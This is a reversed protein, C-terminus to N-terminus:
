LKMWLYSVGKMTVKGDEVTVNSSILTEGTQVDLTYVRESPNVICLLTNEGDSRKFIAPYDDSIVEFANDSAFLEPYERKVAVMRKVTNILSNEQAEQTEVNIDKYDDYIPLYMEGDGTSFGANKGSTWQMPTRSGTRRYGGDKNKIKEYSMGIEDGYYILPVGPLALIFAFVAKLDEADRWKSFRPLDHNGTPISIYGKGKVAELNRMFYAFFKKAEGLGEKQFYSHGDKAIINADPQNRLLHTYGEDCEHTFFDIDFSGNKVAYEPQGWESVFIAEPYEERVKGFIKTWVECACKKEITDGKIISPAMDVRFGDVGKKLWFRIINMVEEHIKLCPEDLYHNQWSFKKEAFGFNLAPQFCYYNLIYNGNRESNGSINNYPVPGGYVDDTWIYYDSYQNQEHKQSERFWPHEDSTHGVVLDFLVRLGLEHAKKFLEEADEMTGFREDIAYYDAIDYGGDRFPSKFVPNIWVIDAFQKIYPLKETIGKLDGIGDGNSDYFSTPYVNYMISNRIHHNM